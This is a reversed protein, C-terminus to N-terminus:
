SYFSGNCPFCNDVVTYGDEDIYIDGYCCLRWWSECDPGDDSALGAIRTNPSSAPVPHSGPAPGSPPTTSFLNAHPIISFSDDSKQPLNPAQKSSDQLPIDKFDHNPADFSAAEPSPQNTSDKSLDLDSPNSFDIAGSQFNPDEGAPTALTSTTSFALLFLFGFIHM